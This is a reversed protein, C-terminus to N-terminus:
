VRTPSVTSNVSVFSTSMGCEISKWAACISGFCANLDITLFSDSVNVNLGFNAPANMYWQPVAGTSMCMPDPINPAIMTEGRSRSGAVAPTAVLVGDCILEPLVVRRNVSVEIWATQRTERLMSVENIAHHRVVEGNVRTATMELPAVAFARANRLREVLADIRWENMLFGVTGRNMGFVPCVKGRLLMEHLTQLLFGDGGLAVIQEAEKLSVFDYRGRLLAEAAIAAEANSAVLATPKDLADM